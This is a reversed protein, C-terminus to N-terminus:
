PPRTARSSLLAPRGHAPGLQTLQAAKLLSGARGPSEPTHLERCGKDQFGTQPATCHDSM